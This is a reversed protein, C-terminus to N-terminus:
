ETRPRRQKCHATTASDAVSLSTRTNLAARCRRWTRTSWTSLNGLKPRASRNVNILICQRDTRAGHKYEIILADCADATFHVDQFCLKAVGSPRSFTLANMAPGALRRRLSADTTSHGPRACRLLVSTPPALRKPRVGAHLIAQGRAYGQREAALLPGVAPEESGHM